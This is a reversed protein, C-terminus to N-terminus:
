YVAPACNYHFAEGAVGASFAVTMATASESSISPVVTAVKSDGVMTITCPLSSAIPDSESGHAASTTQSWTLSCSTVTGTGVNVHGSCNTGVISPSTGCGTVTPANGECLPVAIHTVSSVGWAGLALLVLAAAAAIIITKRM